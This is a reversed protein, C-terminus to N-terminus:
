RDLLAEVGQILRRLSGVGMVPWGRPLGSSPRRATRAKPVLSASPSSSPRACPVQSWIADPVGCARTAVLGVAISSV